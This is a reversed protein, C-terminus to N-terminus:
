ALLSEFLTVHAEVMKALPFHQEVRDRAATGLRRALEPQDMVCSLATALADTDGPPVLLGQQGDEVVERNGSNNCAVVPLGAAMAELLAVSLDEEVSPLVFLDAAALLTDVEDFRGVLSVRGALNRADIRQQLSTRQPGDGVLWLRANPRHALVKEWATVLSVLGRSRHLRGVYVALPTEEALTLTSHDTALSERAMRCTMKDHAPQPAVGHALYHIRERSYGAAILERHALPSPGLLAAAKMTRRKIRRGCKADLQWLCDGWRGAAEARLVVPVKQEVAGLAAYADHRLGSVYILDYHDRNARLWRALNRLYRIEGWRSQQDYPLRIVSVGRWRLETTWPPYELVTLVTARCGREVLAAALDGITRSAGDWRPWFRRTIFIVRYGSM